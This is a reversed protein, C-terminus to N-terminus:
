ETIEATPTTACGSVTCRLLAPHGGNNYNDDLVRGTKGDMFEFYRGTTRIELTIVSNDDADVHVNFPDGSITQEAVWNTGDQTFNM